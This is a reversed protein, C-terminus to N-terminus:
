YEGLETLLYQPFVFDFYSLLKIYQSKGSILMSIVINTDIVYNFM